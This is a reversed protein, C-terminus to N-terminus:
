NQYENKLISNIKDSIIKYGDVSLHGGIPSYANMKLNELDKTSDYFKIDNESKSIFDNLAERYYDNNFGPKWYESAPIFVVIPKCEKNALSNSGCNESLKQLTFKINNPLIVNKKTFLINRYEPLTYHRKLVRPLREFILNEKIKKNHFQNNIIEDVIPGAFDFLKIINNSLSQPKGNLLNNEDFYKINQVLYKDLIFKNFIDKQKEDFDNIYLILVLAKEPNFYKTFTQILSIYHATTNGNSALNIVNYKKRLRGAISYKEEVCAGNAFSDGVFIIDTRKEWVDDPNRLGFRDTTYKILGYGENCLYVKTHPQSTIPVINEKKAIKFLKSRKEIWSNPQIAPRYGNKIAKIKLKKTQLNRKAIIPAVENKYFSIHTFYKRLGYDTTILMFYSICILFLFKFM